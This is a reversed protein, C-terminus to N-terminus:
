APMLSVITFLLLFLLFRGKHLRNHLPSFLCCILLGFIFTNCLAVFSMFAIDHSCVYVLPTSVTKRHSMLVSVLLVFPTVSPQPLLSPLLMEPLTILVHFAVLQWASVTLDNSTFSDHTDM